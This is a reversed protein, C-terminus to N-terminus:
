WRACTSTAPHLVADRADSASLKDPTVNRGSQEMFVLPCYNRHLGVLLLGAVRACRAFCGWLRAGSVESRVSSLVISRKAPEHEPKAQEDIGLFDRVLHVEGFPVGTQANGYPGPEHWSCWRKRARAFRSTFGTRARARIRTSQLRPHHTRRAYPPWRVRCRMAEALLDSPISMPLARVVAVSATCQRVGRSVRSSSSSRARDPTTTSLRRGSERLTWDSSRHQKNELMARAAM